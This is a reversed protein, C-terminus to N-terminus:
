DRHFRQRTEPCLGVRDTPLCSKNARCPFVSREFHAISTQRRSRDHPNANDPSPGTPLEVLLARRREGATERLRAPCNHEKSNRLGASNMERSPQKTDHPPSYTSSRLPSSHSRRNALSKPPPAVQRCTARNDATRCLLIATQRYRDCRRWPGAQRASGARVQICDAPPHAAKERHLRQTRQTETTYKQESNM